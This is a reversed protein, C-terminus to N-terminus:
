SLSSLAREEVSLDGPVDNMLFGQKRQEAEVFSSKLSEPITLWLGREAHATRCAGFNPELNLGM